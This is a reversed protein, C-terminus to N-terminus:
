GCPTAPGATTSSRRASTTPSISSTPGRTSCRPSSRCRTSCAPSTSATNASQADAPQAPDAGSGYARRDPHPGRARARLLGDVVRPDARQQRCRAGLVDDQRRGDLRGHRAKGRVHHAPQLRHHPHARPPLRSLTWFLPQTTLGDVAAYLLAGNAALWLAVKWFAVHGTQPDPRFFLNLLGILPWCARPGPADLAGFVRTTVKEQGTSM